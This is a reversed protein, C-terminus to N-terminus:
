HDSLVFYFDHLLLANVLSIQAYIPLAYSDELVYPLANSEQRLCIRSASTQLHKFQIRNEM